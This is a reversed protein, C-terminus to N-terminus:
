KQKISLTATDNKQIMDWLEKVAGYASVNFVLNAANGFYFDRSYKIKSASPDTNIKIVDKSIEGADAGGPAEGNDIAFTSPYTLEVEDKESWPYAFAVDYQRTASAFKAPSGYEFIGPQFFMRKGTKQAYNPAKITYRQIIPKANNDFNEIAINTIEANSMRALISDKLSQERKAPEDDWNSLRYTLAEQGHLEISITGELTGNEALTVNATRKSLNKEHPSVGLMLWGNSRESVVLAPANERYWPLQGFPAYKIGPNFVRFDGGVDVAVGAFSILNRDTMRLEFFVEDRRSSYAVRTDFGAAIAMTGFLSNIQGASASATPGAKVIDKLTQKLISKLQDDTVSLDYSANKLNQCFDYIRRLKEEPNAAGAVLSETVKKVDGADAQWRRVSLSRMGAIAGWYKTPNSRDQKMIAIDGGNTAFGSVNADLLTLYPKVMDDPPMYREEKFAPVNTRSLRFFGHEDKVFGQGTANYMQTVPEKGSYPKYYYVLERVPVDKQLYFRGGIFSDGENSERYQYEVIVGPEINPVAFSKARLKIGSARVVEREFIDKEALEVTMGDPKVVRAAIDKIKTLGKVYPIDMKAFKERGRETFIKIRVYNKRTLKDDSSDDIRTEWILAEADADPEVVPKVAQLDAPAIPRWEVAKQAYVSASFIFLLM